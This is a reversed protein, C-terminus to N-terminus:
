GARDLEPGVRVSDEGGLTVNDREPTFEVNHNPYERGTGILGSQAIYLAPRTVTCSYSRIM